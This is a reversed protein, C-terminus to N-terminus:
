HCVCATVVILNPIIILPTILNLADVTILPTIYYINDDTSSTPSDGPRSSNYGNTNGEFYWVSLCVVMCTFRPKILPAYVTMHALVLLVKYM